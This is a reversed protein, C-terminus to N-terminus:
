DTGHRRRVGIAILGLGLLALPAPASVAAADWQINDVGFPHFGDGTGFWRVEDVSSALTLTSWVNIDGFTVTLTEVLGGDNWGELTITDGASSGASRAADMAFASVDTDFLMTLGYSSGNFGSFISGNTGELDWNGPDGNGIGGWTSGDDTAVFAVGLASYRDAQMPGNSNDAPFEEFNIVGAHATTALLLALAFVGVSRNLMKM